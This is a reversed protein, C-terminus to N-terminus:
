ILVRKAPAQASNKDVNKYPCVYTDRLEAGSGITVSEGTASMDTIKVDDGIINHWGIISHSIVCNKGIKAGRLIVCNDLKTGSGIVCDPGIVVNKILECNEDVKASEDILVKKENRILLPIGEIFASPMGIDMWYGTLPMVYLKGESAIEPFIKREISCPENPVRDIVSPELIYHGANINCNRNNTAPKERFGLVLGSDDSDIVGYRSGDEVQWGMITAEGGKKLHYELLEKFPYPSIVDSNLMFFRHGNLHEKALAIPGATGMAITEVSPIIKTNPHRHGYEEIFQKLDNQLESLALIIKKCGVACLQDLMYECMPRNCFEVLPKSRTFTLPRLRTGYGGVLVLAALPLDSKNQM